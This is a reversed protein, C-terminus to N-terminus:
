VPRYSTLIKQILRARRESMLCQLLFDVDKPNYRFLHSNHPPNNKVELCWKIYEDLKKDDYIDLVLYESTKSMDFHPSKSINQLRKCYNILGKLDWKENM